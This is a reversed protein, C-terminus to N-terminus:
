DELFINDPTVNFVAAIKKAMEYTLRRKKNEIQWYFSKSVGIIKAIDAHKYKKQIRMQELKLYKSM